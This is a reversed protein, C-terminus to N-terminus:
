INKFTLITENKYIDGPSLLTSPFDTVNPADPFMQTEFCIAPYKRYNAGDLFQLHDLNPPTYVVMAPQNTKVTMEIGSKGSSFVVKEENDNLVFTDDLGSFENEGIVNEETFDFKTGKNEKIEGTPILQESVELYKSASIKLRHGLVSGEGDLNYYNHNTLNVYTPKDTTAEIIMRLENLQTLEYTVITKLNGPYGEEGDKSLYSLVIKSADANVVEEINFVKKDFGEKGGHLSVEGEKHLPYTVGNIAFEGKSIRGAYRGIIAGLYVCNDLYVSSQYDSVKPLGLVVNILKGKKNPVKLAMITAGIPNVLLELGNSNTVRITTCRDAKNM